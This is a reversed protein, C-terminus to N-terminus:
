SLLFFDLGDFRQVTGRLSFTNYVDAIGRSAEFIVPDKLAKSSFQNVLGKESMSPVFQTFYQYKDLLTDYIARLAELVIPHGLLMMCRFFGVQELHIDRHIFLEMHKLDHLTFEFCDREHIDHGAMYYLMAQHKRLLEEYSVFLTIVRRGEAQQRLVQMPSPIYFLLEFPRKNLCWLIMSINIYNNTNKKIGNFQCLNFVDMVSWEISLDYFDAEKDSSGQRKSLKKYIYRIDIADKIADPISNLRVSLSNLAGSGQSLTSQPAPSESDESTSTTMCRNHNHVPGPYLVSVPGAESFQTDNNENIDDQPAHIVDLRNEQSDVADIRVGDCTSERATSEIVSPRLLGGLWRKPQKISLCILIFLGVLDYDKISGSEHKKVLLSLFQHLKEAHQTIDQDIVKKSAKKVFNIDNLSTM